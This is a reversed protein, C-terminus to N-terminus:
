KSLLDILKSGKIIRKDEDIGLKELLIEFISQNESKIIITKATKLDYDLDIDELEALGKSLDFEIGLAKLDFDDALDALEEEINVFDWSSNHTLKNSALRYAKKKKYDLGEIRYCEVEKQGLQKCALWRKHGALINNNEDIIINDIIGIKKYNEVLEDIGQQTHVKNNKGYPKLLDPNIFCISKNLKPAEM